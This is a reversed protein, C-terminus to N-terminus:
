PQLIVKMLGPEGDYLRKFWVAGESLPAVQSILADVDLAGRAILELCAPYEGGSACSGNVSIERTVVQQLAFDIQPALNGVLTLTGGKRLSAIATKVAASIGVAEFAIDAGRGATLNQIAAALDPRDAQFTHSAGLRRALELKRPDLDVAVVNGCGAVKLLQILLLGIMGSGVVVATNNVGVPSRHLAHLAISVPEVMAAQEFTIAEPLQYAIHQPIAVYEAFAGNQRYEACSVGLVRRNDCLNIRGQRCFYCRGCYITSDFTIRDGVQFGTVVAGAAAVIGSAEHGMVLPPIRRGTSGDFGHVDSGCIACAKVRVLLDEPGYDPSPVEEYVLEGYAKLVLAKM